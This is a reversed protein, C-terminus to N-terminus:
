VGAPTSTQWTSTPIDFRYLDNCNRSGDWGGFVLISDRWVVASHSNRPSPAEGKSEVLHWQEKTHSYYVAHMDNKRSSGASGGFTYIDRHAHVVATSYGRSSPPNGRSGIPAWGRMDASDDGDATSCTSAFLRPLNQLEADCGGEEGGQIGSSFARPLLDEM